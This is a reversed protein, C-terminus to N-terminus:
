CRQMPRRGGAWKAKTVRGDGGGGDDRISAHSPSKCHFSRAQHIISSLLPSAQSTSVDIEVAPRRKRGARLLTKDHLHVALPQM